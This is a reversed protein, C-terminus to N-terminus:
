SRKFKCISKWAVDVSNKSAESRVGLDKYYNHEFDIKVTNRFDLTTQPRQSSSPTLTPSKSAKCIPVLTGSM